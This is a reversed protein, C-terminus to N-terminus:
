LFLNYNEANRVAMAPNNSAYGRCTSEDYNKDDTSGVKHSLEHYM